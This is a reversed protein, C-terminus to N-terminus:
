GRTRAWRVQLGGQIAGITNQGEDAPVGAAQSGEGRAKMSRAVRPVIAALGPVQGASALGSDPALVLVKDTSWDMVVVVKDVLLTHPNSRNRIM